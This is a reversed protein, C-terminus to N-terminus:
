LNVYLIGNFLLICWISVGKNIKKHINSVYILSNQLKAMQNWHGCRYKVYKLAYIYKIHM